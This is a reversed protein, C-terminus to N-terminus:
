ITPTNAEKVVDNYDVSQVENSTKVNLFVRYLMLYCHVLM